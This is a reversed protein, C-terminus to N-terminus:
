GRLAAVVRAVDADTLDAHPALRLLPAPMDGPARWPLCATTLVRHEALLRRQTQEVDQGTAPRLGLIAGDAGPADVVDWGVAPGELAARLRAGADRLRTRVTEPGAAVLEDVAHAWGVRAAVSTDGPERLRVQELVADHQPAVALVGTGRPGRLWKRGPAYVADAAYATQHHGLAQAADVWVPVGASRGLDVVDAVPQVLGRHSAAHVVHVVDVGGAGLLSRLADLDIRGHHDTGLPVLQAGRRALAGLNPGWESPAVAVVPVAPLPWTALLLALGTSASDTLVVGEAPLGLLGGLATRLRDLTPGVATEAEYAGMEVERQLHAVQAAVTAPTPRACAAAQLHLLDTM